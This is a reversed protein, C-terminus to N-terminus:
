LNHNRSKEDAIKQELFSKIKQQMFEKKLQIQRKDRIHELKELMVKFRYKPDQMKKLQDRQDGEMFQMFLTKEKQFRKNSEEDVYITSNNFYLREIKQILDKDTGVLVSLSAKLKQLTM